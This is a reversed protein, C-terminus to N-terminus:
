RIEEADHNTESPRDFFADRCVQVAERLSAAPRVNGGNLEDASATEEARVITLILPRGRGRLDLRRLLQQLRSQNRGVSLHFVCIVDVTSVDLADIRDRSASRYPVAWSTLGHKELLQCLMAGGLDDLLGPGGVCLVTANARGHNNAPLDGDAEHTEAGDSAEALDAIVGEVIAKFGVLRDRKLIGRQADNAALLLGKLAVEDYYASLSASALLTEAQQLLEDADGALVRQYFTEVPTLPPRDGLLVDIFALRPVHRGLVLLCLSLPTSLILGIPGWLWTWFVAAVVVSVPSLGTSHGYVLPEVFQGTAAEVLFFLGVTWAVMAWGPDVAAAMAGALSVSILGGLYPIFRMLAAVAGWLAAHPVGIVALGAGIAAGFALNVALQSLFYRSLRTAADNMAITTRHLDGSGMLRILRDRLDAQQLLMFVALVFVLGITALPTLIPRLIQRAVGLPTPPPRYVEVLTPSAPPKAPAKALGAARAAQHGAQAAQLGFRGAVEALKGTTLGGVDQIKSQITGQYKPLEQGLAALQSAILAGAGCVLALSLTVTLLVAPARPLRWGRLLRVPPALVFALLVALTVPVLFERGLYLAGVIVAGLVVNLLQGVSPTEIPTVRSSASDPIDM